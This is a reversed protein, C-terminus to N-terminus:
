KFSEMARTSLALFLIVFFVTLLPLFVIIELSKGYLLILWVMLGGIALNITPFSFALPVPPNKPDNTFVPVYAGVMIGTASFVLLMPAALFILYAAGPIRMFYLILLFLPLSTLSVEVVAFLYKALIIDRSRFPSSRLLYINDKEDVFALLSPLVTMQTFLVIVLMFAQTLSAAFESPIPIPTMWLPQVLLLYIGFAVGFVVYVYKWFQVPTRMKSWFDKLIIWMMPDKFRTKSFDVQGRIRQSIGGTAEVEENRGKAFVEYIDYDVVITLALFGIFFAIFIVVLLAAIPAGISHVGFSEMIIISVMNSPYGFQFIPNSSYEPMAPVYLVAAIPLLILHAARSKWVAHVKTRLISCFGGVFYNFELFFILAVITIMLSLAFLHASQLLPSIVIVGIIIYMMKRVIRRLYRALFLQHPRVPATMMIHEDSSELVQSPGLGFYGGLASAVTLLGVVSFIASKEINDEIYQIMPSFYPALDLFSSVVSAVIFSGGLTIGYFVLMSPARLTRIFQNFMMRLEMRVLFPTKIDSMHM